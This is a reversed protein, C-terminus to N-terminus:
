EAHQAREHVDRPDALHEGTGGLTRGRHDFARQHEHDEHDVEDGPHAREDGGAARPGSWRGPLGDALADLEAVFYRCQETPRATPCELAQALAARAQRARGIQADLAAIQEEVIARWRHEPGDLIGGLDGLTMGLQRGIQVFSAACRSRDYWRKGDRRASATVLGRDEYYRLASARLGFRVAAEGIPVLESAKLGPQVPVSTLM